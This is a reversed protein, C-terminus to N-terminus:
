LFSTKQVLGCLGDISIAFHFIINNYYYETVKYFSLFTFQEMNYRCGALLQSM